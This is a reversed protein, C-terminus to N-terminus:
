QQQFKWSCHHPKGHEVQRQGPQAYAGRSSRQRYSSVRPGIAPLMARQSLYTRRKRYQQQPVEHQQGIRHARDQAQLDMQPNWDSDFIVVTDAQHPFKSPYLVCLHSEVVVFTRCVLCM